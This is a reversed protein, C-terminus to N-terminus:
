RAAVGGACDSGSSGHRQPIRMSRPPIHVQQEEERTRKKRSFGDFCDCADDVLCAMELGGLDCPLDCFGAQRSRAMPPVAFRRYAIGCRDLRMRLVAIGRWVGYRRIARYGLASCSACNTHARYACRFGKLPSLYRQYLRIAALAVYRAFSAPM